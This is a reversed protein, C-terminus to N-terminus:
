KVSVRIIILALLEKMISTLKLMQLSIKHYSSIIWKQIRYMLEIQLIHQYTLIFVFLNLLRYFDKYINAQFIQQTYFLNNLICISIEAYLLKLYNKQLRYLSVTFLKLFYNQEIGIILIPLAMYMFLLQITQFNLEEYEQDM